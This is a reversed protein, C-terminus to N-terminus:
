KESIVIDHIKQGSYKGFEVAGFYKKGEYIFRIKDGVKVDFGLEGQNLDIYFFDGEKFILDDFLM